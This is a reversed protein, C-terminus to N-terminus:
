GPRTYRVTAWVDPRHASEVFTEWCRRKAEGIAKQWVCKAEVYVERPTIDAQWQRRTHGLEERKDAIDNSYWWKSRICLEVAKTHENLIVATEQEFAEV